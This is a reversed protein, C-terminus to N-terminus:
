KSDTFQSKHLALEFYYSVVCILVYANICMSVYTCVLFVACAAHLIPRLTCLVRFLAHIACWVPM